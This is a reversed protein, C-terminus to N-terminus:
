LIDCVLYMQSLNKYLDSLIELNIIVKKKYIIYM